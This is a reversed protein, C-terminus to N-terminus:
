EFGPDCALEPLYDSNQIQGTSRASAAQPAIRRAPQKAIMKGRDSDRRFLDVGRYRIFSWSLHIIWFFLVDRGGPSFILGFLGYYSNLADTLVASSGVKAEV